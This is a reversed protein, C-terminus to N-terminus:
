IKMKVWRLINEWTILSKKKPGNKKMIKEKYQDFQISEISKYELKNIREEAWDFRNM